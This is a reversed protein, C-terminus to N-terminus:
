RSAGLYSDINNSISKLMKQKQFLLINDFAKCFEKKIEKFEELDDLNEIIGDVTNICFTTVVNLVGIPILNSTYSRNIKIQMPIHQICTTNKGYQIVEEWEEQRHLLKLILSLAELTSFEDESM